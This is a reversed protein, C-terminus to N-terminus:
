NREEIRIAGNYLARWYEPSKALQAHAQTNYLLPSEESRIISGISMFLGFTAASGM